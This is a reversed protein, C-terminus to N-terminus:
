RARQPAVTAGAAAIVPPRGLYVDRSARFRYSASAGSVAGSVGGLFMGAIAAGQAASKADGGVAKVLLGGLIGGALTGFGFGRTADRGPSRALRITNVSAEDFIASGDLVLGSASLETITGEATAGNADSVLVRDGIAARIPIGLFSHRAPTREVTLRTDRELQELALAIDTAALRVTEFRARGDGDSYHITLYDKTKKVPWGAKSPEVAKEYHM